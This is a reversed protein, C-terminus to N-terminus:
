ADKGPPSIRFSYKLQVMSSNSAEEARVCAGDGSEGSISFFTFATRLLLLLNIQEASDVGEVDTSVGIESQRDEVGGVAGDSNAIIAGGGGHGAPNRKGGGPVLTPVSARTRGLAAPGPDQSQNQHQVESRWGRCRRRRGARLAGCHRM